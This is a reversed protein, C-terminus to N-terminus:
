EEGVFSGDLALLFNDTLPAFARWGGDDISGIVRITGNKDGDWVVRVHGQYWTGSAGTAEFRISQGVENSLDPYSRRRWPALQASLLLRAESKDM